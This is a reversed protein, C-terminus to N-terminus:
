ARIARPQAAQQQQQQQQQQSPAKTDNYLTIKQGAIEEHDHGDDGKKAGMQGYAKVRLREWEGATPVPLGQAKRDDWYGTGRAAYAERVVESELLPELPVDDNFLAFYFIGLRTYHAQDAPPAVVRHITQKLYGASLFALADGANIVLANDRHKVLRWVNDPMLVELSTIPQSWLISVSNFDTHGQLRVGGLAADDEKPPTHYMAYRLLDLGKTEPDRSLNWLTDAPLKLVLSFVSLIKRLIVRHNYVAFAEIEPLLEQISPPFLKQRAEPSYSQSGFNLQEIRDKIGNLKWHGQEKYGVFSGTGLIDAKFKAKDEESVGNFVYQGIAFQRLVQDWSLGHNEAYIFGDRHFADGVEQVVDAPVDTFDDGTVKSLDLTRLPAWDIDKQQTPTPPTWAPIDLTSAPM